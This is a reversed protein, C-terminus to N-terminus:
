TTTEARSQNLHLCVYCNPLTCTASYFNIIHQKIYKTFGPFSHKHVKEKINLPCNNYLDPLRHRVSKNVYIHRSQCICNDDNTCRTNYGHFESQRRFM